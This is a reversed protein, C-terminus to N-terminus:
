QDAAVAQPVQAPVPRVGQAESRGVLVAILLDGTVNLVTRCMDLFRDVGLILLAGETPVGISALIAMLMPLSGGPVGATGVGGLIALLLVTAKQVLALEVGFCQALFLATVGEYLATGNQNASAGVTLVFRGVDRPVRLEEECVRLAVPLTASSSSTGFATAMAERSRRFFDLPTMGGFAGVLASYTVFQHFALAGVVLAAYGLLHALLEYGHRATLDLVLAGVGLPALRMVLGIFGMSAAYVSDLLTLLPATRERGAALVGIGFLLAFFMLGLVDGAAAAKFPNDPILALLREAPTASDEAAAPLTGSRLLAERVQPPFGVGPQFLEVAALGTLVSLATIALTFALTKLAVRGLKAADGMEAVGLILSSVVLPIVIMRLLQLFLRGLPQAGYDLLAAVAAPPQPWAAHLALGLAAGAAFGLLIQRHRPM